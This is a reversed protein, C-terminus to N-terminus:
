SGKFGFCSLAPFTTRVGQSFAVHCGRWPGDVRGQVADDVVGGAGQQHLGRIVVLDARHPELPALIPSLEFERESGSPTWGYRADVEHVGDSGTGTTAFRRGSRGPSWMRTSCM